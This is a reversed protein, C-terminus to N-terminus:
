NINLCCSSNKSLSWLACPTFYIPGKFTTTNLITIDLNRFFVFSFVCKFCQCLKVSITTATVVHLCCSSHVLKHQKYERSNEQTEPSLLAQQSHAHPPFPETIKEKETLYMATCRDLKATTSDTPPLVKGGVHFFLM